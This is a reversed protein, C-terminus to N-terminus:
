SCALSFPPRDPACSCSRFFSLFSSWFPWFTLLGSPWIKLCRRGFKPLFTKLGIFDLKGAAGAGAKGLVPFFLCKLSSHTLHSGPSNDSKCRRQERLLSKRRLFAPNECAWPIDYFKRTSYLFVSQFDLHELCSWSLSDDRGKMCGSFPKKPPISSSFASGIRPPPLSLRIKM